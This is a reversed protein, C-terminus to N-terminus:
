TAVERRNWAAMQADFAADEAESRRQLSGDTLERHAYLVTVYGRSEPADNYALVLPGLRDVRCQRDPYDMSGGDRPDLYLRQFGEVSECPSVPWRNRAIRVRRGQLDALRDFVAGVRQLAYFVGLGALRAPTSFEPGNMRRM